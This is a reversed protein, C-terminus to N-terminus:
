RAVKFPLSNFEKQNGAESSNFPPLSTKSIPGFALVLQPEASIGGACYGSALIEACFFFFAGNYYRPTKKNSSNRLGSFPKRKNEKWTPPPPNM